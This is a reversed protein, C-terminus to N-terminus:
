AQGELGVRLAAAMDRRRAASVPFGNAEALAANRELSRIAAETWGRPVSPGPASAARAEAERVKRTARM